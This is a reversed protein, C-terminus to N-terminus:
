INSYINSKTRGELWKHSLIQEVTLRKSPNVELMSNILSMAEDSIDKISNFNGCMILEHLENMNNAKFPVTGSLMAYLVVGASWVDVGFGEYGENRLIEPAIYAPTGCQHKIIEGKKIQRSVGFDCIKINGSLDILINDLKIDRHVVSRSHIYQIAEIIQRFIFKATPENLKNRKRVFSLLDGGGVYELILLLHRDTEFTEYLKVVNNHKLLKMIKIEYQIRKECYESTFNKKNFSKLGVLRGSATHL